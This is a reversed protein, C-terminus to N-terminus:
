EANKFFAVAKEDKKIHSKRPSKVKTGFHQILYKRLTHYKIDVNYETKVWQQADWYGLFSNYPDNVRKSLGKHIESTIIKSGERRPSDTLLGDLGGQKYRNIWRELTRIHVGLYNSLDQRSNDDKNVIRILAKVRKQLHATKQKYYLKQLEKISESIAFLSTKVM